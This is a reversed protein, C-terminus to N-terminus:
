DKDAPSLASSINIVRLVIYVNEYDICQFLQADNEIVSLQCSSYCNSRLLNYEFVAFYANLVGNCTRIYPFKLKM